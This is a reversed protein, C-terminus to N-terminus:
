KHKRGSGIAQQNVGGGMQRSLSIRSGAHHGASFAKWNSRKKKKTKAVKWNGAYAERIENIQEERNPLWGGTEAMQQIRIDLSHAMGLRYSERYKHKANKRINARSIRLIAKELYDYMECALEAELDPGVFRIGEYGKVPVVGNLWAISSSIYGRWESLRRSKSRPSAETYHVTKEDLSFQNMLNMARELALSAEHENSSKSLALLKRIKLVAEAKTM